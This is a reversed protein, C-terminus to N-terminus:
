FVVFDTNDLALGATLLAFQVRATGGAGDSDYFLKGTDTEYVIRQAQTDAQGSANAVFATDALTGAALGAFAADDLRIRDEGATFDTIRDVNGGGPATNFVFSDAGAGGTLTDEGLGGSLQNKGSNGILRNALANGTASINGGGTLTLHEVFRVSPTSELSFSVSSQVTDTGGTATEVVKDGASNVVYIDNGGGGTMTDKGLGGDLINNGSNGTLRNDLANGTANRNNKGSLELNELNDGLTFSVSSRVTDKGEGAAETVVDTQSDVTYRDDGLGGAMSDQGADGTLTDNGAGGLLTDDGDGGLLTDALVSGILRDNGQQGSLRDGSGTTLGPRVFHIDSVGLVQGTTLGNSYAIEIRQVPGPIRVLISGTQSTFFEDGFVASGTNGQIFDNNNPQLIVEVEAGDATFARITVLDRWRVPIGNNDTDIADFDLLRFIADAVDVDTGNENFRINITSTPGATGETKYLSVGSFPEDPKKFHLAAAVEATAAAEFLQVDIAAQLTGILATAGGSIDTGSPGISTWILADTTAGLGAALVDDGTGGLLTDVGDGGILTDNGADGALSDAGALGLIVDAGATGGLTDTAATGEREAYLIVFSTTLRVAQDPRMGLDQVMLDVAMSQGAEFDYLAGQRLFLRDGLVYFRDAFEPAVTVAHGLPAGDPDTVILRGVEVDGDRNAHEFIRPQAIGAGGPLDQVVTISSAPDTGNTVDVRISDTGVNGSPDTFTITVFHLNFTEFDLPMLALLRGQADVSFLGNSVETDLFSSNRFSLVSMANVTFGAATDFGRVSLQGVVHGVPQNEAVLADFELHRGDLELVPRGQEFSDMRYLGDAFIVRAPNLILDAGDPGGARLDVM